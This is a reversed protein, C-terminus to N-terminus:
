EKIGELYGMTPVEYNTGSFNFKTSCRQKQVTKRDEGTDVTTETKKVVLSGNNYVLRDDRYM